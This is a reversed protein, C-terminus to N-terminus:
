YVLGLGLGLGLGMGLGLTILGVWVVFVGGNMKEGGNYMSEGQGGGSGQFVPTLEAVPPPTYPPPPPHNLGPPLGSGRDVKIVFKMGGQCQAGSGADSFFYNPGVKTLPISVTWPQGFATAGSNFILTDDDSSDDTTCSDYTTSNYTQIVTQNTNTNFVALFSHSM